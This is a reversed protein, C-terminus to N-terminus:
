KEKFDKLADWVSSTREEDSEENEIGSNLIALMEPDCDEDTDDHTKILPVALCIFEYIYRAINVEETGLPIYIVEAEEEGPEEDFKFLLQENGSIGLEMEELCRDCETQIAGSFDFVMIYMDTRKEFYLQIDAEGEQIPSAEFYKFFSSDVTYELEHMGTRMGSVPITYQSLADM